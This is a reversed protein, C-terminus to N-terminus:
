SGFDSIGLARLNVQLTHPRAAENMRNLVAEDTVKEFGQVIRGGLFRTSGTVGIYCIPAAASGSDEASLVFASDLVYDGGEIRVEM